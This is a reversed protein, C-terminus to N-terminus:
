EIILENNVMLVGPANWAIKEAEEKQYFSQVTGSLTITNNEVKVRINQDVTASYRLLAHEVNKKELQNPTEAILIVNNTFVKVGKVSSVSKTATEKQFNYEMEGDLTVHGDEVKIQIRDYPVWNLKFAALVNKAIDEDSVEDHTALNVTMHAIIAKVGYVSKTVAEVQSKDLYSKVIGSLTILGDDALVTIQTNKLLPDWKIADQVDKQLDRDNEM